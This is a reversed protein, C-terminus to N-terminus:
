WGGIIIGLEHLKSQMDALQEKMDEMERQFQRVLPEPLPDPNDPLNNLMPLMLQSGDIGCGNQDIFWSQISGCEGIIRVGIRGIWSGPEPSEYPFEIEGMRDQKCLWVKHHRRLRSLFNHPPDTMTEPHM